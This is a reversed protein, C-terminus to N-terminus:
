EFARNMMSSSFMSKLCQRTEKRYRRTSAHTWSFGDNLADVFAQPAETVSSGLGEASLEELAGTLRSSNRGAEIIGREPASNARPHKQSIITLLLSLGRTVFALTIRFTLKRPHIMPRLM